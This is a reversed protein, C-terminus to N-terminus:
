PGGAPPLSWDQGSVPLVPLRKLFRRLPLRVPPAGARDPGPGNEPEPEQPASM